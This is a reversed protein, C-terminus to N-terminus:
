ILILFIINGVSQLKITTININDVYIFNVQDRYSVDKSMLELTSIIYQINAIYLLVYFFLGLLTFKIASFAM